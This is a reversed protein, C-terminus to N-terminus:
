ISIEVAGTMAAASQGGNRARQTAVPVVRIAGDSSVEVSLDYHPPRAPAPAARQVLLQGGKQQQGPDTGERLWQMRRAVVLDDKL